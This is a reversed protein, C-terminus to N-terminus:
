RCKRKLMIKLFVGRLFIYRKSSKLYLKLIHDVEVPFFILSSMKMQVGDRIVLRFNALFYFCVLFHEAQTVHSFLVHKEFALYNMLLVCVFGAGRNTYGLAFKVIRM